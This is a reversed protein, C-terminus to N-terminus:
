KALKEFAERYENFIRSAVADIKQDEIMEKKIDKIPFNFDKMKAYIEPIVNFVSNYFLPFDLSDYFHEIKDSLDIISSWPIDKHESKFSETLKDTSESICMIRFMISDKLLEDVEIDKQTKSDIHDIIFKSDTKIKGIYYDNNKETVM